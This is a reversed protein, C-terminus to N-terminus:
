LSQYYSQIKEAMLKRRMKLFEDYSNIDMEFIKLPICNSRLNHRLDKTDKIGGYRTSSNEVQEQIEKFYVNPSKKGVKINIETQMYVYNAIQNYKSRGLGKSKLYERPFIHHIDGRHTILENIKIDKSLFGRDNNKVQSALFVNFYPSSAVSTDLHQVLASEWFASSLDANEVRSLYEAFGYESINKIDFDIMSEASGSYRGTLISMVFWRRVLDVIIGSVELGCLVVNGV